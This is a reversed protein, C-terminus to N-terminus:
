ATEVDEQPVIVGPMRVSIPVEYMQLWEPQTFDLGSVVLQVIGDWGERPQHINSFWSAGSQVWQDRLQRHSVGLDDDFGFETGCCPCINGEDVPYPMQSYACVPCTYFNM